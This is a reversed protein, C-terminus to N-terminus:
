SYNMGNVQLSGVCNIAVDAATRFFLEVSTIAATNDNEGYGTAINGATSQNNHQMMTGVFGNSLNSNPAYIYIVGTWSEGNSVKNLRWEDETTSTIPPDTQNAPVIQAFTDDYTSGGNSIRICPYCNEGSGTAEDCVSYIVQYVDHGTMGTVTLSSVASTQVDNGLPTFAAAGGGAAWSPSTSAAAATLTEGAPSGPYALQQLHSGDSYFVMGASSQSQTIDDFDLAGGDQVTLGNHTHAKLINSGGGSFGM